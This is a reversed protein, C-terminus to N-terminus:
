LDTQFCMRLLTARLASLAHLKKLWRPWSCNDDVEEGGGGGKGKKKQQKEREKWQIKLTVHAQKNDRTRPAEHSSQLTTGAM